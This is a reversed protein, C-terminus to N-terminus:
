QLRKQLEKLRPNEPDAVPIEDDYETKKPQSGKIPGIQDKKTHEKMMVSNHAVRFRQLGNLFDEELQYYKSVEEKLGHPENVADIIASLTKPNVVTRKNSTSNTHAEAQNQGAAYLRKRNILLKLATMNAKQSNSANNSADHSEIQRGLNTILDIFKQDAQPDMGDKGEPIPKSPHFSDNTSADNKTARLVQPHSSAQEGTHQLAENRAKLEATPLQVKQRSVKALPVEAAASAALKSAPKSVKSGM